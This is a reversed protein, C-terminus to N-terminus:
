SIRSSLKEGIHLRECRCPVRGAPQTSADRRIERVRQENDVGRYSEARLDRHRGVATPFDFAGAAELHGRRTRTCKHWLDMEV